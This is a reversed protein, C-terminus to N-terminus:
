VQIEESQAQLEESQIQLNEHAKQLSKEAQAKSLSATLYDGLRELMSIRESSFQGKRRDNLQLLGLREVGVCLAVLDM